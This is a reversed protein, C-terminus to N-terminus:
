LFLVGWVILNSLVMTKIVPVGMCWLDFGWLFGLWEKTGEPRSNGACLEVLKWGKGYPKYLVYKENDM